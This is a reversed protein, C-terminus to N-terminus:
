KTKNPQNLFDYNVKLYPRVANGLIEQYDKKVPRVAGRITHLDVFGHAEDKEHTSQMVNNFDHGEFYPEGLFAYLRQLVEKPATTLQDFNVFHLSRRHGRAVCDRIRNYAGGVLQAGDSWFALRGELTEMNQGFKAVSNPSSLEKRFLKECSSLIAPLSRYTVIVKPPYGLINELLEYACTWARSKDFIVPQEIAKHFGEVMGRMLNLKDDSTASAKLEPTDSWLQNVQLLLSALGSTPTARFRPNQNLINALLTSGSRPMGNLCHFTKTM